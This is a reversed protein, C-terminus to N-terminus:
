VLWDTSGEVGQQRGILLATVIAFKYLLFV